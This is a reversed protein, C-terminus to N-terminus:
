AAHHGGSDAALGGRILTLTPREGLGVEAADELGIRETELARRLGAEASLRTKHIGAALRIWDDRVSRPTIPEDDGPLPYEQCAALLEAHARRLEAFADGLSDGM